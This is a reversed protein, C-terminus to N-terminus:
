ELAVRITEVLADQVAQCRAMEARLGEYAKWYGEWAEIGLIKEFDIRIPKFREEYAALRGMREELDPIGRTKPSLPAGSVMWERWPKNGKSQNCKGCAPVLNHIETAYGTPKKGHVLPNLHDWESCADGCYACEIHGGEMGLALLAEEVEEATPDIVPVIGNVFSHTIASSRSTITLRKPKSYLSLYDIDM